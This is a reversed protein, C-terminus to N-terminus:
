FAGCSRCVMTLRAPRVGAARREGIWPQLVGMHLKDISVKGIWPMLGKLRNVDDRLTRKRQHELVFKAAAQEFTRSPRVGYVRAQREQEMVRALTQEAEELRDTGTSQCVRRGRIRKDIHLLKGRMKLGPIRKRGM